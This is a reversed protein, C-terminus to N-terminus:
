DCCVMCDGIVLYPLFLEYFKEYYFLVHDLATAPVYLLLGSSLVVLIDALVLHQDSLFTQINSAM